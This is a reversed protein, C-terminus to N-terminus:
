PSCRRGISLGVGKELGVATESWKRESLREGLSMSSSSMCEDRLANRLAEDFPTLSKFGFTYIFSFFNLRPQKFQLKM